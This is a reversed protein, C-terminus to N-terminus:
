QKITLILVLIKIVPSAQSHNVLAVTKTSLSGISIVFYKSVLYVILLSLFLFCTLKWSFRGEIRKNPGVQKDPVESYQM